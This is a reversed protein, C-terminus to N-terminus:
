KPVYRDKRRIVLREYEMLEVFLHCLTSQDVRVGQERRKKTRGVTGRQFRPSELISRDASIFGDQVAQIPTYAQHQSRSVIEM